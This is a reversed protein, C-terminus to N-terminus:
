LQEVVLEDLVTVQRGPDPSLIAARSRLALRVWVVVVIQGDRPGECPYSSLNYERKGLRLRRPHHNCSRLDGQGWESKMPVVKQELWSLHQGM